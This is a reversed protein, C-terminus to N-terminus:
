WSVPVTVLYGPDSLSNLIVPSILLDHLHLHLQIVLSYLEVFYEYVLAIAKKQSGTGVARQNMSDVLLLM